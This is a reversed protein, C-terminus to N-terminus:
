RAFRGTGSISEMLMDSIEEYHRAKKHLSVILEEYERLKKKMTRGNNEVVCLLNEMQVKTMKSRDKRTVYPFLLGKTNTNIDGEAMWYELISNAKDYMNDVILRMGPHEYIGTDNAAIPEYGFINTLKIGHAADAKDMMEQISSLKKRMVTHILAYKLDRQALLYIEDIKVGGEACISHTLDPSSAGYTILWIVKKSM